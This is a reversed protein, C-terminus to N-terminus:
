EVALKAEACYFDVTYSGLPHQRRFKKGCRQRDRLLQWLLRESSTGTQRLQRAFEIPEKYDVVLRPENCQALLVPFQGLETRRRYAPPSPQPHPPQREM